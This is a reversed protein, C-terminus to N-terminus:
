ALPFSPYVIENIRKPLIVGQSSLRIEPLVDHTLFNIFYYIDEWKFGKYKLLNNLEKYQKALVSIPEITMCGGISLVLEYIIENKEVLVIGGGIELVRRAAMTLDKKDYGLLAIQGDKTSTFAFGGVRAGFGQVFVLSITEKKVDILAARIVDIEPNPMIEGDLKELKLNAKRTIVNNIFKIALVESEKNECISVPVRFAKESLKNKLVPCTERFKNKTKNLLKPKFNINANLRGNKSVIVGDAMVYEPFFEKLDKVLLIDAKRGPAIGGIYKDLGYYMAPNITMMTIAQIPDVGYTIAERLLYDMYGQEMIKDPTPGDPTFMIRNTAFKHKELLKAWEPMDPRIPSHRLMVWLGRNLREIAEEATMAEHCSDIGMCILADIERDKCGTTHGELKKGAQMVLSAKEVTKKDLALLRKWMALEAVGFISDSQLFKEIQEKTWSNNEDDFLRAPLSSFVKIPLKNIENCFNLYDQPSFVLPIDWGNSFITTTGLPLVAEAFSYPNFLMDPHCHPDILGPVLFYGSADIVEIKAKEAHHINGYNVSVIWGDSLEVDGEIVMGSYVNVIKGGIILADPKKEGLASRSNKKIVQPRQEITPWMKKLCSGGAIHM